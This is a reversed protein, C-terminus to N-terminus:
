EHQMSRPIKQDTLARLQDVREAGVKGLEAKNRLRSAFSDRLKARDDRVLTIVFNKWRRHFLCQLSNDILESSQFQLDPRQVAGNVGMM